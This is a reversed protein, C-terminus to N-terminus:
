AARRGRKERHYIGLAVLVLGFAGAVGDLYPTWDSPTEVGFPAILLLAFAAVALLLFVVGLALLAEAWGNRGSRGKM